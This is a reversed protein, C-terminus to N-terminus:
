HAMDVTAAIAGAKIADAAAIAAPIAAAIAASGSPLPLELAVSDADAFRIASVILSLPLSLCCCCCLRLCGCCCFRLCGCYRSAAAVVVTFSDAEVIASAAEIITDAVAVVVPM